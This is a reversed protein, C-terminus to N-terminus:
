SYELFKIGKKSCIESYNKELWSNVGLNLQDEFKTRETIEELMDEKEKNTAKSFAEKFGSPNHLYMMLTNPCSKSLMEYVMGENSVVNILEVKLQAPLKAFYDKQNAGKELDEVVKKYQYVSKPLKESKENALCELINEADQLDGVRDSVLELLKNRVIHANFDIYGYDYLAKLLEDPKAGNILMPNSITQGNKQFYTFLVKDKGKLCYVDAEETSFKFNDVVNKIPFDECIEVNELNPYIKLLENVESVIETLYNDNLLEKNNLKQIKKKAERIRKVSQQTTDLTIQVALKPTSQALLLKVVNSEVKGFLGERLTIEELLSPTTEFIQDALGESVSDQNAMPLLEQEPAVIIIHNKLYHQGLENAIEPSFGVKDITFEKLETKYGIKELVKKYNEALSGDVKLFNDEKKTPLEKKNERVIRSNKWLQKNQKKFLSTTLRSEGDSVQSNSDQPNDTVKKNQKKFLSTTLSNGGQGYVKGDPRSRKPPGRNYGM